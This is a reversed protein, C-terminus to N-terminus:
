SAPEPTGAAYVEAVLADGITKAVLDGNAAAGLNSWVVFTVDNVPDHGMFANFGPLEGTHGYVQGYKVIGLGYEASGSPLSDDTPQPSDLRLAQLEEGLVGEGTVLAKVWTALNGATSILQGASWAWSPNDDTMDNPQLRGQAVQQQERASLAQTEVTSVNTGYMYGRPHPDPIAATDSPPFSTQTLGLPGFLREQMIQRLPTGAVKEAILGLLVTNTNSYHFGEGPPFYVPRSLGLALLERPEWQKGPDKDLTRNFGVSESYNYLGSRMNLLQEITIDGGGPV